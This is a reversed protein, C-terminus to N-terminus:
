QLDPDKALITFDFSGWTAIDKSKPWILSRGDIQRSMFIMPTKPQPLSENKACVGNWAQVVSAQEQGWLKTMRRDDPDQLNIVTTAVRHRELMTHLNVRHPKEDVVHAKGVFMIGTDCENRFLEAIKAAMEGDRRNIETVSTDEPSSETDVTFEKMGLGRALKHIRKIHLAVEEFGPQSFNQIHERITSERDLEYFQCVRGQRTAHLLSMLEKRFHYHTRHVEGILILRSGKTLNALESLPLYNKPNDIAARDKANGCITEKPAAWVLTASLGVGVVVTFSTLLLAWFSGRRFALQDTNSRVDM